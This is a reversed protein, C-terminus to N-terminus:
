DGARRTAGPVFRGKRAGAQRIGAKIRGMLEEDALINDIELSSAAIARDLQKLALTEIANSIARNEAVAYRKFSEYHDDSLRLTITKAM